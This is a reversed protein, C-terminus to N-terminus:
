PCGDLAWAIAADFISWGADNFRDGSLDHMPLGIRCGIAREAVTRDGPRFFFLTPLGDVTAVHGGDGAPVGFSAYEPEAYYTVTGNLGAALPHSPGVIEIDTIPEATAGFDVGDDVDTMGLDPFVFPEWTVVPLESGRFLGGVESSRSSSSILVLDNGDADDVDVADDNRVTVECGQVSRLRDEIAADASEIGAQVVFLVGCSPGEGPRYCTNSSPQCAWGPGCPCTKGTFDVEEPACAQAALVCLFGCLGRVDM